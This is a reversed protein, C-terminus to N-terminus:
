KSHLIQDLIASDVISDLKKNSIIDVTMDDFVILLKRNKLIINKLIKILM